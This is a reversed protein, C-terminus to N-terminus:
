KYDYEKTVIGLKILGNACVTEPLVTYGNIESAYYSLVFITAAAVDYVTESKLEERMFNDIKNGLEILEQKTM